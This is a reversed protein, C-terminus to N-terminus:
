FANGVFPLMRGWYMVMLWCAISVVAVVKAQMPADEGPGILRTRKLLMLQFYIANVGALLIFLMKAYFAVNNVYQEPAGLFFIVGTTLNLMFGLIAWPLFDMIAMVPVSRMAGLLRLDLLTVVGVLLALGFFHITECAAWLWQWGTIWGSIGSHHLWSVVPGFM